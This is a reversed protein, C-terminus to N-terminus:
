LASSECYAGRLEASAAPRMALGIVCNHMGDLPAFLGMGIRNQPMSVDAFYPKGIPRLAADAHPYPARGMLGKLKSGSAACLPAQHVQLTGSATRAAILARQPADPSPEMELNTEAENV